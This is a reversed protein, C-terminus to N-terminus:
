YSTTLTIAPGSGPEADGAVRFRYDASLRFNTKVLTFDVNVGPGADLRNVGRQGGAWIAGGLSIALAGDQAAHREVKVNADYFHQLKPIGDSASDRRDFGAQAYGKLVAGQPLSIPNPGGALYAAVSDGARQRLRREVAVLVPIKKSPQWRLGLATEPQDFSDADISFRGFISPSRAAESLRYAAIIGIQGGGYQGGPALAVNGDDRWFAYAYLSLRKPASTKQPDAKITEPALALAPETMKHDPKRQVLPTFAADRDLLSSPPASAKRAHRPRMFSKHQAFLSAPSSPYIGARTTGTASAFSPWVVVSESPLSSDESTQEIKTALDPVNLSAAAPSSHSIKIASSNDNEGFVFVRM